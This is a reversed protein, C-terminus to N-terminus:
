ITFNADDDFRIRGKREAHSQESIAPSESTSTAKQYEKCYIARFVRGFVIEHDDKDLLARCVYAVEASSTNKKRKTPISQLFLTVQM